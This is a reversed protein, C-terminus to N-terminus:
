WSIITYMDVFQREEYFFSVKFGKSELLQKAKKWDESNSYGGHIWLDEDERYQYGTYLCRKGQKALEEIKAGLAEVKEELTPGALKKAQEATIM